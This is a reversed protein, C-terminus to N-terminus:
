ELKVDAKRVVDGWRQIESQLFEGFAAPTSAGLLFGMPEVLKRFEPDELTKAIETNLRDVVPAPTNAPALVGYWNQVEFGELTEAVTPVDPAFAARQPTTMAIANLRGAQVMQMADPGAFVLPVEGGIAATVSPSGGRYPVHLMKTGAAANFLEATLHSSNGNGASAFTLQGDNQRAYEQLEAVSKPGFNPNSYLVLPVRAIMSVPSFDKVPDYPLSAYLSPNIAHAALTLLLTHGDPKAKAVYQTAITGSAGSKYELIVPAGLRKSLHASLPRAVADATGGPPYPIILTIPREPYAATASLAVLALGASLLAKQLLVYM